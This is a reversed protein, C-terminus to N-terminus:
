GPIVSWEEEDQYLLGNRRTYRVMGLGCLIIVSGEDFYDLDNM